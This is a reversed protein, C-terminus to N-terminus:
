LEEGLRHLCKGVKHWAVNEVPSLCKVRSKAKGPIKGFRRKEEEGRVEEVGGVADGWRGVLM